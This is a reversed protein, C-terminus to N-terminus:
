GAVASSTGLTSRAAALGAALVEEPRSFDYWETDAVNVRIILDASQEVHSRFQAEGIEDMRMLVDLATDCHSIPKLESSVDVALIFDEACLRASLVPLSNFVGIDCLLMGEHEVPPFIGPLSASARVLTRLPGHDFVIRRGSLLDVAIVRLPVQADALDADPLLQAVVDELVDGSLLSKRSVVQHVLRNGRVYGTLRHYWSFVGGTSEDETAPRTGFLRRHHSQFDPSQLFELTRHQLSHIEPEFAYLAGAISGISIGAIRNITIGAELVGEIAGLHAVGRAGGGGLALTVHDSPRLALNM